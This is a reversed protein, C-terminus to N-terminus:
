NKQELYQLIEEVVEPSSQKNMDFVLDFHEPRITLNYAQEYRQQESQQRAILQEQTKEVSEHQETARKEEFVRQAATTIDIHLYIKLSQPIFHWGLRSDLILNTKTSLAQQRQDLEKDIAPNTEAQKNLELITCNQEKALERLLTGTSLYTYNLKQALLKGVTSKGSGLDGAITIIM